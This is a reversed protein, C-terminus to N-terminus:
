IMRPERQFDAVRKARYVVGGPGARDSDQPQEELWRTFALLSDQDPIVARSTLNRRLAKLESRIAMGLALVDASPAGTEVALCEILLGALYRRGRVGPVRPFLQTDSVWKLTALLPEAEERGELDLTRNRHAPANISLLAYVSELARRAHTFEREEDLQPFITLLAHSATALAAADTPRCFLDLFTALHHSLRQSLTGLTLCLEINIM